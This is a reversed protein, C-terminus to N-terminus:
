CAQPEFIQTFQAITRRWSYHARIRRAELRMAAYRDPNDLLPQIVSAIEEGSAKPPILLGAKAPICDTIGGVQSGLVPIGLRLAELTAIGLGEAYSPLCGLDFTMVTQVFAHEDKRKDIFGLWKMAPDESYEKPMNGVVAVECNYGQSRLVHAAKILRPLGKRHYDKGIFGLRFPRKQNFIAQIAQADILAEYESIVHDHFNAGPLVVLVKESPIGYEEQVARAAWTSMCVVYRARQYGEQERQIAERAISRGITQGIRYEDFLRTLPLDIYFSNTIRYEQAMDYPPFLQFHSIIEADAIQASVVAFSRHLCNRSYQYGGRGKGSLVQKLNWWRRPWTLGETHLDLADRFFGTSRGAQYFYYPIGSWTAIDGANGMVALFRQPEFPGM